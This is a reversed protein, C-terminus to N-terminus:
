EKLFARYEEQYRSWDVDQWVKNEKKRSAKRRVERQETEHTRKAKMEELKKRQENLKQRLAASKPSAANSLLVYQRPSPTRSTPIPPPSPDLFSGGQEPSPTPEGNTLGAAALTRSERALLVENYHEFRRM